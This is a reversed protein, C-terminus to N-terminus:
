HSSSKKEPAKMLNGIGEDWIVRRYDIWLKWLEWCDKTNFLPDRSVFDTWEKWSKYLIIRM